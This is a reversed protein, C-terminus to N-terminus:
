APTTLHSFPFILVTSAIQPSPFITWSFLTLFIHINSKTESLPFPRDACYYKEPFPPYIPSTNLTTKICQNESKDSARNTWPLGSYAVQQLVSPNVRLYIPPPLCSKLSKHVLIFVFPRLMMDYFHCHKCFYWRLVPAQSVKGLSANVRIELNFSSSTPTRKSGKIPPSGMKFLLVM